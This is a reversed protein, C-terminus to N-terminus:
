VLQLILWTGGENRISMIRNQLRRAKLSAHFIHTNEDGNALWIVKAKQALFMMYAKHYHLFNEKAMQEQNILCENLPDKHLKEQLERLLLNAKFETQKLRKLKSVVQFMETGVVPINWSTQIKDAYSPAEKWMRFYRFPKKEMTFELSFHVLVPSHDFIGEPLFIAESNPFYDTWQSNVMARDIKSYIKEEATKKGIKEHLSLIENFDGIVMWPAAISIALEHMDKWLQDRSLEDNFGYVFTILFSGARNPVKILCHILKTTCLRIDLSYVNLNWAVIIRGKDIWPNNNTFCWGYFLSTYLSGMNKNKVKTELLSVLGVNKSLILHKIERHKHQSYDRTCELLTDYGNLISPVGGERGTNTRQLLDIVSDDELMHFQNTVSTLIADPEKVKVGKVVSQFGEVDVNAQCTIPKWEYEVQIDVEQDFENMFSIHTPFDQAMSVEILIRPYAIRDRNKTINDVQIPKGIQGVIKFLSRDGWYKINLGGLQIWTPVSSIDEKSFDDVPNWPKMILPKKGFFLYGGDLVRDRYEMALFRIICIGSSLIGVKDVQDKWLRRVFGELVRIPPNASLVYCVIESQWFNVEEAIDEMDIKIGLTKEQNMSYGNGAVNKGRYSARNVGSSNYHLIPSSVNKGMDVDQM